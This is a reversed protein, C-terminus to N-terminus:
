DLLYCDETSCRFMLLNQLEEEQVGQYNVPNRNLFESFFGEAEQKVEEHSRVVNDNGCRIERIMNQAKRTRIAWHFTKNNQDGVELWHLKARQKLHEEEM